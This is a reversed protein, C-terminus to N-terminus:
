LMEKQKQDYEAVRLLRNRILAAAAVPRRGRELWLMHRRLAGLILLCLSHGITAAGVKKM